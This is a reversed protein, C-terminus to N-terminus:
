RRHLDTREAPDPLRQRLLVPLRPHRGVVAYGDVNAPGSYVPATVMAAGNWRYVNNASRTPNTTNGVTSFSLPATVPVAINIVAGWNGAADKARVRVTVTGEPLGSTDLTGTATWPGSGSVTMATGNGVGPDTGLFYESAVVSTADNATATLTVSRAGQTPSPSAAGSTLVPGARDVVLTTTAFVGWNGAADKARVSITHNGSSLARVTTLPIDAYGGEVPDSFSGDVARLPVGTGTGPAPAPAPALDIFMEAAAIPSQVDNSLPDKLQTANLRISNTGNSDPILGNTPSIFLGPGGTVLPPTTDVDVTANVATGWNGQADQAHVYISHHGEPVLNVASQDIIGDVSAVPAQQSVTMSVGEGDVGLTDVFYEAAAIMSNGSASDDGTASIQVAGGDHRVLRPSLTLASTTPGGADAGTVLVSSLPGWNGDTSVADKGRVYLVHDGAPISVTATAMENSSGGAAMPAGTGVPGLTDLFYEVSAINSAGRQRDDVQATLVGNLFAVKSTVPGTTDGSAGSGPVNVTTLMGGVGAATRNTLSQSADYVTLSTDQAAAGPVKVLADASEGPGFTQAVYTRPFDLKSGDMGVITQSAGLVGMSHYTVGANVYRLLVTHGGASTIPTTAPYAKGNILSYRPVYTRMDFLARNTTMNNLAPDIESLVLVAEDDYASTADYAQGGAAPRVVLAGHLGMATQYQTGTGAGASLVPGAEYIFTGPRSAVFTYTAPDTPAPNAGAPVGSRDLPMQQGQFFISTPVSLKNCLRVEVTDGETVEITPGGPTTIPGGDFSYGWVPIPGSGPLTTDTGQVACLNISRTAAQAPASPLM